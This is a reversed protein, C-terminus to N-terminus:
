TQLAEFPLLNLQGDPSILLHEVEALDPAIAEFVLAAINQTIEAVAGSGATASFDTAPNQLIGVFDQVATDITAADGLDRAVIRGDPFFLYAAYRPAGFNNSGAATVNAENFRDGMPQTPDFPRYRIFEILVGSDPIQQQIAPLEVPQGAFDVDATRRAIATEVQNVESRLWTLRTQYERDSLNAPRQTTLNALEQQVITLQDLLDLDEPTGRQRLIEQARVGAELVRGKRRLLNTLAFQAALTSNPATDLHLAVVYNLTNALKAVYAIRDNNGLNALSVDLSAEEIAIGERLTAIAQSVDGQARYLGALNYFLPVMYVRQSAASQQIQPTTYGNDGLTSISTIYREFNELAETYLAEAEAYRGQTQYILAINNLSTSVQPLEIEAEPYFEQYITLAERYLTEAADYSQQTIHYSALTEIKVALDFPDDGDRARAVAQALLAETESTPDDTATPLNSDTGERDQAQRAFALNTEMLPILDARDGPDAQLIALAQAYLDVAQDLQRRQVAIGGLGDLVLAQQAPYSTSQARYIALAEVLLPEADAYRSQMFYVTALHYLREAVGPHNDGLQQRATALDEEMLPTAANFSDQLVTQAISGDAQIRITESWIQRSQTALQEGPSSFWDTPHSQPSSVRAVAPVVIGVLMGAWVARLLWRHKAM